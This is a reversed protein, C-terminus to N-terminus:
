DDKLSVGPSIFFKSWHVASLDQEDGLKKRQLPSRAVGGLNLM